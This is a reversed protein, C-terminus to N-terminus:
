QAPTPLKDFPLAMEHGFWKKQLEAMKGSINLRALEDNFFKELSASDSDKRGVWGAYEQPGIPPLVAAFVQPRQRVLYLINPLVQAVVDVRGNALDSYAEDFGIYDRIGSAGKGTKQKLKDSWAQLQQLTASGTQSAAVKGVVGEPTNISADGQRKLLAVTAFSIPLSLAYRETRAKTAMVFTVVYDFKRAELGPLIGQFPIDLQKVKVGPLDKMILALLDVDYGVIRGNEVYEFPAFRAESGIVIEGRQKVRALLDQAPAQHTAVLLTIGVLFLRASYSLVAGSITRVMRASADKDRSVALIGISM